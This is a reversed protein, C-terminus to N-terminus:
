GNEATSRGLLPRRDPLSRTMRELNQLEQLALSLRTKIAKREAHDHHRSYDPVHHENLYRLASIVSLAMRKELSDCYEVHNFEQSSGSEDLWGFRDGKVFYIGGIGTAWDLSHTKVYKTEYLSRPPQGNESPFMAQHYTIGALPRPGPYIPRLVRYLGARLECYDRGQPGGLSILPNSPYPFGLRRGLLYDFSINVLCLRNIILGFASPLFRFALTTPGTFSLQQRELAGYAMIIMRDKRGIRYRVYFQPIIGEFNKDLQHVGLWLGIRIKDLWDLLISIETATLKELALLKLVIPKAANELKGFKDNCAACAPFQFQSFAYQRPKANKVGQSLDLGFNAQRTPDGTLEILWLPLVHEKNKDVPRDGCFLCFKASRAQM